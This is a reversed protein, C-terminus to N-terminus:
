NTNCGRQRARLIAALSTGFSLGFLLGRVGHSWNLGLSTLPHLFWPFVVAMVLFMMAVPILARTQKPANRFNM